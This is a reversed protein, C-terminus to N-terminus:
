KMYIESPYRYNIGKGYLYKLHFGLKDCFRKLNNRKEPLSWGAESFAIARPYLMYYLMDVSTIYESWLMAEVGILNRTQEPSYGFAPDFFYVSDLQISPMGWNDFPLEGFPMQPYNFYAYEEPSCILKSGNNRSISLAKDFGGRRWSYITSNRPYSQMNTEHWFMPSKGHEETLKSVDEFMNSVLQEENEYGLQKMKSQCTECSQMIKTSFEDGGFHFDNSPFIQALETIVVNM